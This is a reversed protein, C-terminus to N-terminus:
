HIGALANSLVRFGLSIAAGLLTGLIIAAISAGVKYWDYRLILTNTFWGAFEAALLMFIVQCFLGFVLPRFVKSEDILSNLAV